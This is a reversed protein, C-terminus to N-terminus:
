TEGGKEGTPVMQSLLRDLRESLERFRQLVEPLTTLYSAELAREM